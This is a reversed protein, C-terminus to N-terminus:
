DIEYFIPFEALRFDPSERYFFLIVSKACSAPEIAKNPIDLSYVEFGEGPNQYEGEEFKCDTVKLCLSFYAPNINRLNSWGLKRMMCLIWFKVICTQYALFDLAFFQPILDNVAMDLFCLCWSQCFRDKGYEIKCYVQPSHPGLLLIGINRSGPYAQAFASVFSPRSEFDYELSNYVVRGNEYRVHEYSLVPDFFAYTMQATDHTIFLINWHVFGELDHIEGFFYIGVKGLPTSRQEVFERISGFTEQVPGYPYARSMRARKTAPSAETYIIDFNIDRDEPDTFNTTYDPNKAVYYTGMYILSKAQPSNDIIYKVMEPQYVRSNVYPLWENENHNIKKEM